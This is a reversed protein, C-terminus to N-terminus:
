ETEAECVVDGLTEADVENEPTTELVADTDPVTVDDFESTAVAVALLHPEADRDPV